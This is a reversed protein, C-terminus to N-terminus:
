KRLTQTHGRAQSAGLTIILASQKGASDIKCGPIDLLPDATAPNRGGPTLMGM